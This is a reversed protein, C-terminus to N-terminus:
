QKWSTPFEVLEIAERERQKREIKKGLWACGIAITATFIIVTRLSFQFRRRKRKPPAAKILDAEMAANDAAVPWL